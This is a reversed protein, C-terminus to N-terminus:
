FQFYLFESSRRIYHLAFFLVMAYVTAQLVDPQWRLLRTLGRAEQPEATAYFHPRYGALMQYVNPFAWM